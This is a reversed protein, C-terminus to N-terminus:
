NAIPDTASLRATRVNSRERFARWTRSVIWGCVIGVVWGVVVQSPYHVGTYVRSIGTLVAAVIWPTGWWKAELAMVTAVAAMNAAHASATGSSDLFMPRGDYATILNVGALEVCPRGAEFANKLIDTVANALPWAIMALAAGRRFKGGVALHLLVVVALVAVIAPVKTALSFFRFVEDGLVTNWSANVWRFIAVDWPGLM